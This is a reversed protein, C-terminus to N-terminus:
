RATGSAGVEETDALPVPRSLHWGQGLDVGIERLREVTRGDEIWEAITRIGMLHSVQNICGVLGLQLPDELDRIFSGDIKLYDPSMTRLYGFSSFGTGFDDLAFRCGLGQLVSIFRTAQPLTEVAATETIEFCLRSPEFGSAELTKTVFSLFADDGLSQGSLNLAYSPGSSGESRRAALHTLTREVVWRDIAPMLRYREAAPGFVAPSVAEGDRDLRLLVEWMTPGEDSHLPHIGQAWLSFREKELAEHLRAIWRMEGHRQAVAADAAAYEHFRDGGRDRAVYCAADAARLAAEPSPTSADIAVMGISATATCRTGQWSFRVRPIAALLGEALRRAAPLESDPLLLGFDDAGLRSVTGPPDIRERLLGAVRRLMLDGAGHGCTDNIVKFRDLDLLCLVHRRGEATASEWARQLAAEFSRRNELDTVPDHSEVHAMRRELELLPSLNQLIVVAGTAEGEAGLIPAASDRIPVETGDRGVLLRDGLPQFHRRERLSRDVPLRLPGRTGADVIRLIEALGRGQAEDHSWGTLREAPPNLYEVYGRADTRLVGDGISTLTVAARERERVLAQEARRRQRREEAERLERRIAPTLRALKDKMIYDHAGARMAAVAAEEGIVGSVLLFPLDRACGRVTELVALGDFGELDFDSIVIEFADEALATRVEELTRVWRYDTDYGGKSLARLLLLLDNEEDEVVLARLPTGV